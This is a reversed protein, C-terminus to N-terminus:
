DDRLLADITQQEYAEAPLAEPGALIAPNPSLRGDVFIRRMVLARRAAKASGFEARLTAAFRAAIRLRRMREIGNRSTLSFHHHAGIERSSSKRSLGCM